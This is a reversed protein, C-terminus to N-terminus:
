RWSLDRCKNTNSKTSIPVEQKKQTSALLAAIIAMDENSLAEDKKVSGQKQKLFSKRLPSDQSNLSDTHIKGLCFEQSKLLHKLFDINTKIGTIFFEDLAKLMNLIASSRNKGFAILKSIM